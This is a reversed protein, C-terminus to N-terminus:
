HNGLTRPRPASRGSPLLFRKRVSYITVVPVRSLILTWDSMGGRRNDLHSALLYCKPFRRLLCLLVYRRTVHDRLHLFFNPSERPPRRCALRREGDGFSHYTSGRSDAASGCETFCGAHRGQTPCWQQSGTSTRPRDICGAAPDLFSIAYTLLTRIYTRM